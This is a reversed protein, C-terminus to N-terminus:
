VCYYYRGQRLHCTALCQKEKNNIIKSELVHTSVRCNSIPHVPQTCCNQKICEDFVYLITTTTTTTTTTTRVNVRLDLGHDCPLSWDSQLQPIGWPFVCVFWLHYVCIDYSVCNMGGSYFFYFAFDPTLRRHALDM